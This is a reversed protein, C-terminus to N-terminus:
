YSGLLITYKYVISMHLKIGTKIVSLRCDCVVKSGDISIFLQLFNVKVASLAISIHNLLIVTIYLM